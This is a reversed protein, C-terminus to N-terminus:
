VTQDKRLQASGAPYGLLLQNRSVLEETEDPPLASMEQLLFIIQRGPSPLCCIQLAAEPGQTHGQLKYDDAGGAECSVHQQKM